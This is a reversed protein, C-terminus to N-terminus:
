VFPELLISHFRSEVYIFQEFIIQLHKIRKNIKFSLNQPLNPPGEEEVLEEAEEKQGGRHGCYSAQGTM